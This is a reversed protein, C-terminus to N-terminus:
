RRDQIPLRDVWDQCVQLLGQAETDIPPRHRYPADLLLRGPGNSFRADALDKDLHALWAEGTLGASHHRPELSICSRRLLVSLKRALAAVDDYRRYEQRLRSLEQQAINRVSHRKRLHRRWLYNGCLGLVVLLGLLMWWGPAPPWWGVPDPLHIDRLDLAQPSM